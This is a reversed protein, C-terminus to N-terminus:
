SIYKQIRQNHTSKMEDVATQLERLLERLNSISCTLTLSKNDTLDLRLSFKPSGKM